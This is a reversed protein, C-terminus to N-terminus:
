ERYAPARIPSAARTSGDTDTDTGAAHRGPSTIASALRGPRGAPRHIELVLLTLVIAFTGDTLSELRRTWTQSQVSRNASV